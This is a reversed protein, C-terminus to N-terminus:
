LFPNKISQTVVKQVGKATAPADPPHDGSQTQDTTRVSSPQARDRKSAQSKSEADGEFPLAPLAVLPILTQAPNTSLTAACGQGALLHCIYIQLERFMILSILSLSCYSLSGGFWDPIHQRILLVKWHGHIHISMSIKCTQPLTQFSWWCSPILAQGTYPRFPISSALNQVPLSFQRQPWQVATLGYIFAVLLGLIGVCKGLTRLYRLRRLQRCRREKKATAHIRFDASEYLRCLHVIHIIVNACWIAVSLSLDKSAACLSKFYLDSSIDSKYGIRDLASTAILWFFINGALPGFFYKDRAFHSM